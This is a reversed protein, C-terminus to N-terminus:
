AFRKQSHAPSATAHLYRKRKSPSLFGYLQLEHLEYELEIDGAPSLPFHQPSPQSVSVHLDRTRPNEPPKTLRFHASNASSHPPPTSTRLYSPFSPPLFLESVYQINESSAATVPSPLCRYTPDEDPVEACFPPMSVVNSGRPEPPTMNAGDAESGDPAAVGGVDRSSSRDQPSNNRPKMMRAVDSRRKRETPLNLSSPQKADRVHIPQNPEFKPQPLPVSLVNAQWNEVREYIGRLDSLAEPPHSYPDASETATAIGQYHRTENLSYAASSGSCMGQWRGRTSGLKAMESVHGWKGSSTDRYTADVALRFKRRLLVVREIDLAGSAPSPPRSIYGSVAALALHSRSLRTSYSLKTPAHTETISNGSWSADSSSIFGRQESPTVDTPPFCPTYTSM